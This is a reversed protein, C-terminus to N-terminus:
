RAQVTHQRVTHISPYIIALPLCCWSPSALVAQCSPPPLHFGRVEVHMCSAHLSPFIDITDISVKVDNQNLNQLTRTITHSTLHWLLFGFYKLPPPLMIEMTSAELGACENGTNVFHSAENGAQQSAGEWVLMLLWYQKPVCQLNIRAFPMVTAYICYLRVMMRWQLLFAWVNPTFPRFMGQQQRQKCSQGLAALKLQFFFSSAIAVVWRFIDTASHPNAFFAVVVFSLVLHSLWDQNIITGRHHHFARFHFMWLLLFTTAHQPMWIILSSFFIIILPSALVVPVFMAASKWPMGCDSYCVRRSLTRVKWDRPYMRNHMHSLGLLYVYTYKELVTYGNMILKVRMKHELNLPQNNSQLNLPQLNDEQLLTQSILFMQAHTIKCISAYRETPSIFRSNEMSSM